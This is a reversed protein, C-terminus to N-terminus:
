KLSQLQTRLADVYCRTLRILEAQEEAPLADMTRSEAESLPAITQNALARGKDTLHLHQDRGKGSILTVCGERELKRVASHVTQKPLFSRNCIDKQLCGDGLECLTYLVSMTGDSLGQAVAVDHYLDGMEKYLRDFESQLPHIYLDM